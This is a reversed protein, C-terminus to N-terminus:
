YHEKYCLFLYGEYTPISPKNITKTQTFDLVCIPMYSSLSTILHRKSLYFAMLLSSCSRKTLLSFPYLFLLTCTKSWLTYAITANNTQIQSNTPITSLHTAFMTCIDQWRTEHNYSILKCWIIQVWTIM